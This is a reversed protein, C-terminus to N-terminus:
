YSPASPSLQTTRAPSATGPPLPSLSARNLQQEQQQAHQRHQQEHQRQQQQGVLQQQRLLQQQLQANKLRTKKQQLSGASIKKSTETAAAAAIVEALRAEAAAVRERELIVWRTPSLSEARRPGRSEVGQRPTAIRGGSSGGGGIAQGTAAKPEV